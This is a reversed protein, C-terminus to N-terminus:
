KKMHFMNFFINNIKNAGTIAAEEGKDVGYKAVKTVGKYLLYYMILYVLAAFGVLSGIVIGAIAGPHLKNDEKEIPEETQSM